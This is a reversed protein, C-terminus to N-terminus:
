LSKSRNCINTRVFCERSKILCNQLEVKLAQAKVMEKLLVKSREVGAVRSPMQLIKQLYNRILYQNYVTM